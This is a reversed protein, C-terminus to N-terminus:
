RRNNGHATSEKMERLLPVSIAGIVRASTDSPIGQAFLADHFTRIRDAFKEADTQATQEARTQKAAVQLAKAVQARKSARVQGHADLLDRAGDATLREAAAQIEADTPIQPTQGM